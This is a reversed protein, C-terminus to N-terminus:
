RAFQYHVRNDHYEMAALISLPNSEIWSPIRPFPAAAKIARLAENDLLQSGSSRIIRAREVQGGAGITFELSLKGQLGYRLALEPYEWHAEILQKIKTFYGVYVPDSTNLSVPGRSGSRGSWDVPPLLERLTPLTREALITREPPVERRTPPAPPPTAAIEPTEAVASKEPLLPKARPAKTLPEASAGPNRRVRAAAARPVPAAPTQRAPEPATELRELLSVAISEPAIKQRVQLSAAMLLLAGHLAISAAFFRLSTLNRLM